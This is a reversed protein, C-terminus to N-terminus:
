MQHVTIWLPYQQLHFYVLTLKYEMPFFFGFQRLMELVPLYYTIRLITPSNLASNHQKVIFISNWFSVQVCCAFLCRILCTNIYCFALNQIVLCVIHLMLLLPTNSAYKGTHHKKWPNLWIGKWFLLIIDFNTNKKLHESEQNKQITINTANMGTQTTPATQACRTLQM